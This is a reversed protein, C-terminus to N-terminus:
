VNAIALDDGTLEPDIYPVGGGQNTGTVNVLSPAANWENVTIGPATGADFRLPGQEIRPRITLQGGSVEFVAGALQGSIVPGNLAYSPDIDGIVVYRGLVSEVPEVHPYFMGAYHDLEADTMNETLVTVTELNWPLVDPVDPLYVAAADALYTSDILTAVERTVPGYRAINGADELTYTVEPLGAVAQVGTLRLRNIIQERAKKWSDPRMVHCASLVLAADDAGADPNWELTIMAPTDADPRLLYPAETMAEAITSRWLQLYFTHPGDHGMWFTDWAPDGAPDWEYAVRLVAIGRSDGSGALVQDVADRLSLTGHPITNREWEQPDHMAFNYASENLLEGARFEIGFGVPIGPDELDLEGALDVTLDVIHVAVLVRGKTAPSATLPDAIRGVTHMYPIPDGVAAPRDLSVRVLDGVDLAPVTAPSTALLSFTVEDAALPSPVPGNLDWTATLGDVIFVLDGLDLTDGQTTTHTWGQSLNEITVAYAPRDM